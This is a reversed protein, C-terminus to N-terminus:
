LNEFMTEIDRTTKLADFQTGRELARQKYYHMLEKDVLLSKISEYIGKESNECVIGYENNEGLLEKAGACSTSVTALGLILAETVSTSLGERYSSCVYADCKSMYKYPNECFGILKFTEAVRNEIILKELEKRQDGDGLIIIYHKIGEELLRKHAYILREFGKVKQLKGASCIKPVGDPFMFNVSESAKTLISDTDNVNHYTEVSIRNNDFYKCFSKNVENSVGVIKSANSFARRAGGVTLFGLKFMRYNLITTHIWYVKKSDPYICGSIIRATPGELYSVVIDYRDKVIFRYLFSPPITQILKANGHFQHKMFSKYHVHSSLVTRNIGEDFLTQITVDYNDRNMHNALNVLVREAGGNGLTPILFLVTKKM